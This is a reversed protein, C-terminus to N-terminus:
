VRVTESLVFHTYILLDGGSELHKLGKGELAQTIAYEISRAAVANRPPTGPKFTFTHYKSFDAGPDHDTHLELTSCAVFGLTLVAGLCRVIRMGEEEASWLGPRRPYTLLPVPRDPVCM